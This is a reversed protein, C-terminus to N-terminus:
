PKTNQQIPSTDPKPPEPVPEVPTQNRTQTKNDPLRLPGKRGCGQLSFALILILIIGSRM